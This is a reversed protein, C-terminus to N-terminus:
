YLATTHHHLTTTCHTNCHPPATHHHLATIHQHSPATYHHLTTTCHTKCQPPAKILAAHQHLATTCHPPAIYHHLATTLATTCMDFRVNDEICYVISIAVFFCTAVIYHFLFYFFFSYLQYLM